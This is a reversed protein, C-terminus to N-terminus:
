KILVKKDSYCTKLRNELLEYTKTDNSLIETIFLEKNNGIDNIDDLNLCEKNNLDMKNMFCALNKITYLVQKKDKILESNLQNLGPEENIRLMKEQDSYNFSYYMKNYESATFYYIKNNVILYLGQIYAEVCSSVKGIFKDFLKEIEDRFFEEYKEAIEFVDNTNVKELEKYYNFCQPMECAIGNKYVDKFDSDFKLDLLLGSVTSKGNSEDIEIIKDIDLNREEFVNLKVRGNEFKIFSYEPNYINEEVYDVLDDIFLEKIDNEGYITCNSEPDFFDFSLQNIKIKTMYSTINNEEKTAIYKRKGESDLITFGCEKKEPIKKMLGSVIENYM